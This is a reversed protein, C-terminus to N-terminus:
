LCFFTLFMTLIHIVQATMKLKFEQLKSDFDEGSSSECYHMLHFCFFLANFLLWLRSKPEFCLAQYYPIPYKCHSSCCGLDLIYSKPHCIYLKNDDTAFSFQTKINWHKMSCSSRCLLMTKMLSVGGFDELFGFIPRLAFCCFSFFLQPM